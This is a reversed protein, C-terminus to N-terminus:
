HKINRGFYPMLFAYKLAVVATIILITAMVFAPFTFEPIYEIYCIASNNKVAYNGLTDNAMIVFTLLTFPPQPPLTADYSNEFEQGSGPPVHTMTINQWNDTQNTTYALIVTDVGHVATVNVLINAELWYQASAPYYPPDGITIESDGAASHILTLVLFLCLVLAFTLLVGNKTDLKGAPSM